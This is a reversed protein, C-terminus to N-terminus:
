HSGSARIFNLLVYKTVDAGVEWNQLVGKCINFSIQLHSSWISFTVSDLMANIILSIVVVIKERCVNINWLCSKVRDSGFM